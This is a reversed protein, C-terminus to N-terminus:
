YVLLVEAASTNKEYIDYEELPPIIKPRYMYLALLLKEITEEKNSVLYGEM